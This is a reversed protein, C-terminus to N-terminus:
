LFPMCKVEFVSLLQFQWLDFPRRRWAGITITKRDDYSLAEKRRFSSPHNLCSDTPLYLDHDVIIIIDLARSRRSGFIEHSKVYWAPFLGLSMLAHCFSLITVPKTHDCWGLCKQTKNRFSNEDGGEYSHLM